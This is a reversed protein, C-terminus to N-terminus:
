AYAYICLPSSVQDFPYCFLYFCTLPPDLKMHDIEFGFYLPFFRGEFNMQNENMNKTLDFLFTNWRETEISFYPKGPM